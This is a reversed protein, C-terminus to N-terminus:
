GFLGRVDASIFHVGHTHTYDNIELQTTHTADTIVVVQFRALVEPSLSETELVDVPVYRNLERLRDVTSKDRPKGVDSERLFFQTGLDGIQV